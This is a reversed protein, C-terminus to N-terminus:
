GSHFAFFVLVPLILWGFSYRTLAGLGLMAGALLAMVVIRLM